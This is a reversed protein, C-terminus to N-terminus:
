ILATLHQHFNIQYDMLLLNKNRNYFM